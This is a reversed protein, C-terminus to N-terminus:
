TVCHWWLLVNLEDCVCKVEYGGVKFSPTEFLILKNETWVFSTRGQRSKFCRSWSSPALVRGSHKGVKIVCMVPTSNLATWTLCKNLKCQWSSNRCEHAGTTSTEDVVYSHKDSLPVPPSPHRHRASTRGPTNNRATPFSHEAVQSQVPCEVIQINVNVARSSIRKFIEFVCM